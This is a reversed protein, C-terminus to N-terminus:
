RGLASAASAGANSISGSSFQGAFGGASGGIGGAGTGGGGFIGSEAALGVLGIVNQLQNARQMATQLDQQINRTTIGAELRQHQRDLAREGRGRQAVFQDRTEEAISSNSIGRNALANAISRAIRDQDEEFAERADALEGRQLNLEARQQKRLRSQARKNARGAMLGGALNAIGLGVALAPVVM